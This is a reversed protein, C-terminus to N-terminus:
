IPELNDQCPQEQELAWRTIRIFNHGILTHGVYNHGVYNHGLEDNDMYYHGTCM